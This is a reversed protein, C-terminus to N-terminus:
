SVPAQFNTGGSGLLVVVEAGKYDGLTDAIVIDPNGDGNVDALIVDGGAVPIAYRAESILNLNQDFEAVDVVQEASVFLYNGAQTRTIAETTVSNGTAPAGPPCATLQKEFHPTTGIVSYPSANAAEYATYSNDAQQLLVVHSSPTPTLSQSYAAQFSVAPCGPQAAVCVSGVMAVGPILLVKFRRFNMVTPHLCTKWWYSVPVSECTETPLQAMAQPLTVCPTTVSTRFSEQRYIM